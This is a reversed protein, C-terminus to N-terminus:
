PSGCYGSVAYFQVQGNISDGAVYDTGNLILGIPVVEGPMVTVDLTTEGPQGTYDGAFLKVGTPGSYTIHMCIPTGEWLDNSVGLVERFVYTSNPSIGEGFGDQYNPNNQSLDIVLMGNDTIYAYPQMPRLDILENDDPVVEIHVGRDATFYAFHASSATVAVLLGIILAFLGMIKRM